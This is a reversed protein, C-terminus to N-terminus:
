GIIEFVEIEKVQFTPGGTFVKPAAQGTDNSYASELCTANETCTNCNDLVVINGPGFSPGRDAVCLIAEKKKQARLPFKKPRINHPNRITFLFTRLTPDARCGGASDWKIPTFGGFISGKTDLVVTLTNGHGDCRGHFERAGFGDRGGRWLLAFQMASFEAFVEPFGRVIVSCWGVPLPAPMGGSKLAQVEAELRAVRGLLVDTSGGDAADTQNALAVVRANETFERVEKLLTRADDIESRVKEDDVSSLRFRIDSIERECQLMREEMSSLRLRAEWETLPPTPTFHPSDLFDSLQSSLSAFGFETSLQSLGRFNSPTISFPLGEIASVFDRFDSVPVESKVSYPSVTLAPDDAFLDCKQVLTRCLLTISELPHVLLLTAM